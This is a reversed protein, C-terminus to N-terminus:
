DDKREKRIERGKMRTIEGEERSREKGGRCVGGKVRKQGKRGTEM